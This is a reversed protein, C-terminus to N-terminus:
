VPQKKDNIDAELLIAPSFNYSWLNPGAPVQKIKAVQKLPILRGFQEKIKINELQKLSSMDTQKVRIYFSENNETLETIIHGELATRLALGVSKFNLGLRALTKQKAFIQYETGRNTEPKIKLNILGPIKKIKPLVKDIFRNIEQRNNSQFAVQLAKGVPPGGEMINFNLRKLDGKNIQRLQNLIDKYDLDRLVKPKVRLLIRGIEQGNNTSATVSMWKVVDEGGMVEYMKKSIRKSEKDVLNLSSNPKLEITATYFEPNTTSFLDIRNGFKFVLATLVILLAIGSLGLYKKSIIKKIAKEFFDELKQFKKLLFQQYHSPKKQTLWKLRNPLLCFSEFLSMLLALTVVIPIWKTFQGMVGTTVLMPLFAVITTLVTATIPKKFQRVAQQSAFAPTKKDETVLRSYYEGIVVSNDILMGICIVFALMTVINFSVGIFPLIAFTGLISLPLSFGVMFGTKSPLFLFFVIFILIMGGLANNIVNTLRRKVNKGENFGTVIKYDKNLNKKFEKLSTNLAAILSITDTIKSKRVELSTSPNFENPQTVFYERFTQKEAGDIVQAVDKILVKQGSFNSRIVVNKINEATRTKGLARVLHQTNPSELYGAPIDSTYQELALIVDISSIYHKEMKEKSLFISLEKKQYGPKNVQLVGPVQELRHELQFRLQEKTRGKNPGTIYFIIIPNETASDYHMLRPPNLVEPPLGQVNQLKQSLKNIM